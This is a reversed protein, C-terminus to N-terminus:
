PRYDEAVDGDTYVYRVGCDNCDTGLPCLSSVSGPGGDECYGNIPPPFMCDNDCISRPAEAESGGDEGAPDTWGDDDDSTDAEGRDYTDVVDDGADGADPEAELQETDQQEDETADADDDGYVIAGCGCCQSVVVLGAVAGFSVGVVLGKLADRIEERM